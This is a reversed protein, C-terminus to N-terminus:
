FSQITEKRNTYATPMAFSKATLGPFVRISGVVPMIDFNVQLKVTRDRLEKSPHRLLYKCGYVQDPSWGMPRKGNPSPKGNLDEPVWVHVWERMHRCSDMDDERCPMDDCRGRPCHQWYPYERGDPRVVKDWLVVQNHREVPTRGGEPIEVDYEATVYMFVQRVNWNFVPTMDVDMTFTFNSREGGVPYRRQKQLHYLTRLDVGGNPPVELWYTSMAMCFSFFGLVVLGYVLVANVRMWVSQM